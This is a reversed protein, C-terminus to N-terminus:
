ESNHMKELFAQFEKQRASSQDTYDKEFISDLNVEYRGSVINTARLIIKRALYALTTGCLNAATGLQPWSYITKGVEPVSQLMRPVALNAGAMRAIIKPLDKPSVNKLDESKTEGLLGHLIPLSSDSDYREIDIINGDGNDAAMIVPVGIKKAYERAKLKLYPHDTEEVLIDLKPNSIFEELNTETAGEPYISVNAYPNLEYIQRAVSVTKPLGINQFGTKIRNTNSASITDPDALKINKGGGTLAITLAAHSGVSLGLVGVTSSYYHKQEESTILYRNRGTRVELHMDEPLFHILTCLWPYHFWVGAPAKEQWTEFETEYNPDFRYNPHRLLFIERLQEPYQDVVKLNPNGEIFSPLENEKILIPQWSARDTKEKTNMKNLQSPNSKISWKQKGGIKFYKPDEYPWFILHPTAALPNDQYNNRYESNSELLNKIIASGLADSVAPPCSSCDNRLEINIVFFQNQKDDNEALMTFKGTLYRDFPSKEIIQRVHEPYINAGSLSIAFNKREYVYVFPLHWITSELKNKQAEAVFNIGFKKGHSLMDQYTVIGGYDELDYRVLPIGSMSSCVLGNEVEEFYFLEPDYQALTPLRHSTEPRFITEFLEPNKLALRRILIALPTEHALTGQDVTGYHNLTDSYINELGSLKAIHDRFDESFGEASFVFKPHYKPWDIGNVLGEDLIDKVFPPYGGIIIQDFHSGLNQVAKIIEPKNLGPSIITLAYPHHERVIHLADHTFIGGIWVGLAFCNIYLSSKKHIQFNNRLYLEATTAYQQNQNKTRPFYFPHGTSGSTAAFTWQKPKLQGDWCLDPLDYRRLYESKTLLPVSKFDSITQIRNHDVRNIKLFDRYAPVRIAMAHFLNLAREAGLKLFYDSHKTHLDHAIHQADLRHREPLTQPKLNHPPM